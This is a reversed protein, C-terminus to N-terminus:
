HRSQELGQQSRSLGDKAAANTPDCDLIERFLRIANKYDGSGRAQQARILYPATPGILVCEATPTPTTHKDEHKHAPQPNQPKQGTSASQTNTETNPQTGQTGQTGQSQTTGQTTSPGTGPSTASQGTSSSSASTAANGTKTVAKNSDNAIRIWVFSAIAAVVVVIAALIAFSPSRLVASIRRSPKPVPRHSISASSADAAAAATAAGASAAPAAPLTVLTLQPESQLLELKEPTTWLYENVGFRAPFSRLPLCKVATSHQCVEHTVLVQAPRSIKLLTLLDHPPEPIAVAGAPAEPDGEANGEHNSVASAAGKSSTDIAISVAVPAVGPRGRFGQLGLQIRRAAVLADTPQKLGSVYIQNHTAQFVGQKCSVLDAIFALLGSHRTSAPDAADSEADKSAPSWIRLVMEVKVSSPDGDITQLTETLLGPPAGPSPSDM